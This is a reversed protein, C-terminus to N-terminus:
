SIHISKPLLGCLTCSSQCCQAETPECPCAPSAGLLHLYNSQRGEVEVRTLEPNYLDCFPFATNVWLLVNSCSLDDIQNVCLLSAQNRDPLSFASVSGVTQFIGPHIMPPNSPLFPPLSSCNLLLMKTDKLDNNENELGVFDM